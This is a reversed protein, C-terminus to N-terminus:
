THSSSPPRVCFGTPVRYSTSPFVSTVRHAPILRLTWSARSYELIQGNEVIGVLLSGAQDNTLVQTAITGADKGGRAQHDRHMTRGPPRPSAPRAYRAYRYPLSEVHYGFPFQFCDILMVSIFRGLCGSYSCSYNLSSVTKLAQLNTM